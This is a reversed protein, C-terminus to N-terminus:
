GGIVWRRELMYRLGKHTNDDPVIWPLTDAPLVEMFNVLPLDLGFRSGVHYLSELMSRYDAKGDEILPTTGALNASGYYMEEFVTTWGLINAQEPTLVKVRHKDMTHVLKAISEKISEAMPTFMAQRAENLRHHGTLIARIHCLRVEIFRSDPGKRLCWQWFLENHKKQQDLFSQYFFEELSVESRLPNDPHNRHYFSSPDLTKFEFPPDEEMDMADLDEEEEEWDDEEEPMREPTRMAARRSSRDIIALKDFELVTALEKFTVRNETRRSESIVRRMASSPQASEKNWRSITKDQSERVTPLLAAALREDEQLRLAKRHVKRNAVEIRLRNREQNIKVIKVPDTIPRHFHRGDLHYACELGHLFTDEANWPCPAKPAPLAPPPFLSATPRAPTAQRGCKMRLRNMFPVVKSALGKVVATKQALTRAMSKAYPFKAAVFLRRGILYLGPITLGALTVGITLQTLLVLDLEPDFKVMSCSAPAELCAIYRDYSLSM